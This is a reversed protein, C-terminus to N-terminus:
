DRGKYPVPPREDRTYYWYRPARITKLHLHWAILLGMYILSVIINSLAICAFTLIVLMPISMISGSGYASPYHGYISDSGVHCISAFWIGAAILAFVVALGIMVPHQLIEM